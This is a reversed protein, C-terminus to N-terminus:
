SFVSPLIDLVKENFCETSGKFVLKPLYSDAKFLNLLEKELEFINGPEDNVEKIIDFLYPMKSPGEFRKKISRSTIGIKVFSENGNYCKIIYLTSISNSCKIFKEKTFVCSSSYSCLKCGKGQLHNQPTQNFIGHKKCKILVKSSNNTYCTQSYDYKTNHIENAMNIFVETKNLASQISPVSGKRLNAISTKYVGYKNKLIINQLNTKSIYQFGKIKIQKILTDFDNHQNCLKCGNGQLHASPTQFFAGHEKCIIEIKTTYDVYTTYEYKNQHIYNSRNKFEILTLKPNM